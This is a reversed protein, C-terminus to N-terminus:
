EGGRRYLNLRPGHGADVDAAEMKATIRGLLARVTDLAARAQILAPALDPHGARECLARVAGAHEDEGLRRDAEAAVRRRADELSAADELVRNAFAIDLRAAACAALVERAAEDGLRARGGGAAPRAAPPAVFAAVRNQFRDPVRLRAVSAPAITAAAVAGSAPAVVEDAFGKEVAEEADMWTEAQLLARLEAESVRARRLYTAVMPAEVAELSEAAKRLEASDGMAVSWPMHVMFVANDMIRVRDAGGSTVITAASAALGEVTATVHARHERLVNAIALADFFSGGPSNVRLHIAQVAPPLARLDQVLAAADVGGFDAGIADYIYLEAEGAEARIAYWRRPTM